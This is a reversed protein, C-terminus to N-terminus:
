EAVRDGPKLGSEPMEIVAGFYSQRPMKSLVCEDLRSIPPNIQGAKCIRPCFARSALDKSHIGSEAPANSGLPM